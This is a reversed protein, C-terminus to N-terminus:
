YEVIDAQTRPRLRAVIRGDPLRAMTCIGTVIAYHGVEPPTISNGSALSSTYVYVGQLGVGESLATGDDVYFFRSPSATDKSTVMGWTTLLLGVNYPGKGATIGHTLDNLDQGGLSRNIMALPKPVPVGAFRVTMIPYDIYREGSTASTVIQGSVDVMDGALVQAPNGHLYVRIGSIRNAEQVYFAGSLQDSGATVIKGYADVWTYNNEGKLESLTPVHIDSHWFGHEVRGCSYSDDPAMSEGVLFQGLTDAILYNTSSRYEAGTGPCFDAAIPAGILLLLMAALFHSIRKVAVEM